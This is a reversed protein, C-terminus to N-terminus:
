SKNRAYVFGGLGIMLLSLVFGVQIMLTFATDGVKPLGLNLIHNSIELAPADAGSTIYMTAMSQGASYAQASGGENASASIVGSNDADWGNRAASLESVIQNVHIKAIAVESTIVNDSANSTASNVWKNINATVAIVATSSATVGLDDAAVSAATAHANIKATDDAISSLAGIMSNMNTNITSSDSASQASKASALASDLSASVSNIDDLMGNIEVIATSNVHGAFAVESGQTITVRSYTSILNAGSYGSSSSDFILSGSGTAQTVGHIIDATVDISGISLVQRGDNSKLTVQYTSGEPAPAVGSLNIVASDSKSIDTEILVKGVVPSAAEVQMAMSPAALTLLVIAM